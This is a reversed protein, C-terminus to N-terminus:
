KKLLKYTHVHQKWLCYKINGMKVIKKDGWCQTTHNGRNPKGNASVVLLAEHWEAEGEVSSPHASDEAQQAPGNKGTAGWLGGGWRARVLVVIAKVVGFLSTAVRWRDGGGIMGLAGVDSIPSIRVGLHIHLPSYNTYLSMCVLVCVGVYVYSNCSVRYQFLFLCMFVSMQAPKDLFICLNKCLCVFMCLLSMWVDLCVFATKTPARKSCISQKQTVSSM